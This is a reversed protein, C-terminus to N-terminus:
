QRVSSDTRKDLQYQAYKEHWNHLKQAQTLSVPAASAASAAVPSVSAPFATLLQHKQTRTLVRTIPQKAHQKKCDPDFCHVHLCGRSINIWFYARNSQHMENRYLCFRSGNGKVTVIFAHKSEDVVVKHIALHRYAAHVTVLVDLIARYGAPHQRLEVASTYKRRGLNGLVRRESAFMIDSQPIVDHIDGMDAPRCFGPTFGGMTAPVISTETLITYVDDPLLRTFEADPSAFSGAYTYISSDVLRGNFCTCIRALQTQVASCDHGNQKLRIGMCCIPCDIMKYSYCPRLTANTSRYSAPDLLSPWQPCVNTLRTDILQAILKMTNTTTIIQPFIVHAGWALGSVKGSSPRHKRKRESTAVHMLPVSQPYCEQVTHYIVRLHQLAEDFTPLPITSTRYDLEFFLRIGECNHAIEADTLICGTRIDHAKAALTQLYMAHSLVATGGTMFTSRLLDGHHEDTCQALATKWTSGCFPYKGALAAARAAEALVVKNYQRVYDDSSM